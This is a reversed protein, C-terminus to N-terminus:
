PASDSASITQGDNSAVEHRHILVICFLASVYTVQNLILFFFYGTAAGANDVMLTPLFSLVVIWLYPALIKWRMSVPHCAGKPTVRFVVDRTHIAIAVGMLSGWLAWPWRIVQFLVTEWTILPTQQPRSWGHRRLFGFIAITLATVPLTHLVFDVYSVRVWPQGTFVAIIPLSLGCLMTVGFLPYWLESFLFQLRLPWSLHRWYKPMVTLLVVMLSRSWQFEQTVCAALTPPGEGHAMADISHVGRWGHGNMMLTTSHDEALEPGLGGIEKLAKTRVAYHSGICLPAFGNTYGAQLPGHLISEAFLRGRAAWSSAANSDCISPASVYGVRSDVFPCLMAELYTEEPVHDADLQVVFDYQDYGYHDYFFALNGEKCKSRRPWTDRHYAEAGKRTSLQVGREKCWLDIEDSPDEDALWTDHPFTQALMAELTKKVVSYPECPARTTVMAVRWHRPLDIRPNPRKMRTAFFFLYGPLVLTWTILLTNCAFRFWDGIHPGRFWWTYFVALGMGWAMVLFCLCSKQRASMADILLSDAGADISTSRGSAPGHGLRGNGANRPPRLPSRSDGRGNPAPQLDTPALISSM